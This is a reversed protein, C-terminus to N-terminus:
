EVRIGIWTCCVIDNRKLSQLELQQVQLMMIGVQADQVTEKASAHVPYISFLLAHHLKCWSLSAYCCLVMATSHLRCWNHDPIKQSNQECPNVLHMSCPSLKTGCLLNVRAPWSQLKVISGSEQFIHCEPFLFISLSSPFPLFLWWTPNESGDVPSWASETLMTWIHCLTESDITVTKYLVYATTQHKSLYEEYDVQITYLYSAFRHRCYLGLM